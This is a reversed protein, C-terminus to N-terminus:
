DASQCKNEASRWRQPRDESASVCYATPRFSHGDHGAAAPFPRCQAGAGLVSGVALRPAVEAARVSEEGRRPDTGGGQRLEGAVFKLPKASAPRHTVGDKIERGAPWARQAASPNARDAYVARDDERVTYALRQSDHLSAGALQAARVLGSGQDGGLYENYGFVDKGGKKTWGAQPGSESLTGPGDAPPKAAAAGGTADILTDRKIFLRRAALQRNVETFAADALGHRALEQRIRWITAYDPVSEDLPM